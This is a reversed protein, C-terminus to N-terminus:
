PPAACVRDARGDRGLFAGRFLHGTMRNRANIFVSYRRHAKGIAPWAGRANQADPDPARPRADACYSWVTVAERACAEHLLDRYLRSGPHTIPFSRFLLGASGPPVDTTLCSVHLRGLLNAAADIDHDRQADAHRRRESQHRRRRNRVHRRQFRRHLERVGLNPMSVIDGGTLNAITDAGYIANLVFTTSGTASGTM